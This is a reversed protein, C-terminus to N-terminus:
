NGNVIMDYLVLRVSSSATVIGGFFHAFWEANVFTGAVRINYYWGLKLLVLSILAASAVPINLRLYRGWLRTKLKIGNDSAFYPITLVYGSLVFFILVAFRGGYFVIFLPSTIVNLCDATVSASVGNYRAGRNLFSFVEGVLLTGPFFAGIYHAFAVNLSAIGRLGDASKNHM